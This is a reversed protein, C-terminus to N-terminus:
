LLEARVIELCKGLESKGTWSASNLIRPNTYPLGVAYYTDKGAEGLKKTGTDLLAKKLHANQTFKARVLNLMIDGKINEWKNRDGINIASGIQKIERPNTTYLIRREAVSDNNEKAQMYAQELNAYVQDDYVFRTPAWNSLGDHESLVGGFVIYLKVTLNEASNQQNFLMRYNM